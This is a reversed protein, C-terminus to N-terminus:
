EEDDSVGKQRVLFSAYVGGHFQSIRARAEVATKSIAIKSELDLVPLGGRVGPRADRRIELLFDRYAEKTRGLANNQYFYATVLHIGEPVELQLWLDPGELAPPVSLFSRKRM